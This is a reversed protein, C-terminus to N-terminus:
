AAVEDATRATALSAAPHQEIDHAADLLRAAFERLSVSDMAAEMEAGGGCLRMAVSATNNRAFRFVRVAIPWPEGTANDVGWDFPNVGQYYRQDPATVPVRPPCIGRHLRHQAPQGAADTQPSNM